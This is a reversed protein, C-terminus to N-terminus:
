MGLMERACWAGLADHRDISSARVFYVIINMTCKGSRTGSGLGVSRVSWAFIPVRDSSVMFDAVDM